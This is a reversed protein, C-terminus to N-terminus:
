GSEERFSPRASPPSRRIIELRWALPLILKTYCFGAAIESDTVAFLQHPHNGRAACSKPDLAVAEQYMWDTASAEDLIVTMRNHIPEITRNASERGCNFRDTTYAFATVIPPLM